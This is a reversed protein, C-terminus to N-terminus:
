HGNEHGQRVHGELQSLEGLCLLIRELGDLGIRPFMGCADQQGAHPCRQIFAIRSQGIEAGGELKGAWRHRGGAAPRDSKGRVLRQVVELLEDIQFLDVIKRGARQQRHGGAHSLHRLALEVLHEIARALDGRNGHAALVTLHQGIWRKHDVVFCRRGDTEVPAIIPAVDHLGECAVAFPDGIDVM